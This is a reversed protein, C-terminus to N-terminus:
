QSHMRWYRWSEALWNSCLVWREPPREASASYRARPLHRPLLARRKCTGPGVLRDTLGDVNMSDKLLFAVSQFTSPIGGDNRRRLYGTLAEYSNRLCEFCLGYLTCSCLSCRCSALLKKLCCTDVCILDKGCQPRLCLLRNRAIKYSASTEFCKVLILPPYIMLSANHSPNQMHM